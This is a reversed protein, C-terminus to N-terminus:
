RHQITGALGRNRAAGVVVDERGAFGMSEEGGEEMVGDSPVPYVGHVHGSMGSMGLHLHTGLMVPTGVRSPEASELDEATTPLGMESRKEVKGRKVEGKEVDGKAKNYMFLGVFTMGMGAGQVRSVHQHSWLIALIIVAIRKILSAISYTVPSTRSLISFAILNQLFHVTGNTIFTLLLPSSSPSSSHLSPDLYLTLLAHSDSYLWIPIMLLFAMGSSYFLLNLKDLKGVGTNNTSIGTPSEKPLLKKSFINQSVFIITSGLACLFGFANARLDFSCALMVGITLPALAAYTASSYRVRFLVAYSLVTFM